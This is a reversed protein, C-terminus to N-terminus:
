KEVIIEISNVLNRLLAKEIDSNSDTTFNIGNFLQSSDREITISVATEQKGITTPLRYIDGWALTTQYSFSVATDQQPALYSGSIQLTPQNAAADSGLVVQIACYNDAAITRTQLFVATTALLSETQPATTRAESIEGGHGAYVTPPALWDSVNLDDCVLLEASYTTVNGEALFIEYGLDTTIPEAEDTATAWDLKYSVVTADNTEQQAMVLPTIFAALLFLTIILIRNRGNRYTTM